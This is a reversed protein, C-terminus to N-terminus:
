RRSKHATATIIQNYYEAHRARATEYADRYMAPSDTGGHKKVFRRLSAISAGECVRANGGLSSEVEFIVRFSASKFTPFKPGIYDGAVEIRAPNVITRPPNKANM